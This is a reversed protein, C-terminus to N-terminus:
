SKEGIPLARIANACRVISQHEMLRATAEVAAAERMDRQGQAYAARYFAELEDNTATWYQERCHSDPPMEDMFCDRAAQRIEKINM